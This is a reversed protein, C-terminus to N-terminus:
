ASCRQACKNPIRRDPRLYLTSVKGKPDAAAPETPTTSFFAYPEKLERDQGEAPGGASAVATLVGLVLIRLRM